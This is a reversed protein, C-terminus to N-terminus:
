VGPPVLDPDFIVPIARNSGNWCFECTDFHYMTWCNLFLAAADNRCTQEVLMTKRPSHHISRCSHKALSLQPEFWDCIMERIILRGEGKGIFGMSPPDGTGRRHPETKIVRMYDDGVPHLRVVTWLQRTPMIPVSVHPLWPDVSQGHNWVDEADLRDVLVKQIDECWNDPGFHNM